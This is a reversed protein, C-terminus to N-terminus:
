SGRERERMEYYRLKEATENNVKDVIVRYADLQEDKQKIIKQHDGGWVIIGKYLGYIFGALMGMAGIDRIVEFITVFQNV